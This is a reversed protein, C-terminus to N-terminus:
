ESYRFAKNPYAPAKPVPRPDKQIDAELVRMAEELQADEGMFTAHPLDDKVIDPTWATGKSSGPVRRVMSGRRRRPRLERTLSSTTPASGSKVAGPERASRRALGSDVSVRPLPRATRRRRRMASSWWTAVFPTSCTGLPTASRAAALLVVGKADAELPAVFRHQRRPQSARRRHPGPRDFVPYFERAWQEIDDSGMAQLHVYGIRGKSESDVKARRTYEWERYRVDAEASATIPTVIVDREEGGDAARVHLLVKQGAKGRLLAREDTVDPLPAGDISLIVDGEKVRSDPRSLPPALNPLDPDHVTSMTSSSGERRPIADSCRASPASPCRTPRGALTGSASSSTSRPCSASWRRSSTTSSEATPCGISWRCTGTAYRSGTSRRADKPRLLLRAGAAMRGPLAPPVGRAPRHLDVLTVSRDEGPGHGELRRTSKATVDADFIFFDDDKRVFLKKRDASIEFSKVDAM